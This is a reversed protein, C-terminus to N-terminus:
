MSTPLLAVCSCNGLHCTFNDDRLSEFFLAIENILRTQGISKYVTTEIVTGSTIRDGVDM